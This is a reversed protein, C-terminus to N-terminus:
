HERWSLQAVPIQLDRHTKKQSQGITNVLRAMLNVHGLKICVLNTIIINRSKSKNPQKRQHQTKDCATIKM